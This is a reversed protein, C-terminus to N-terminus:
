RGTTPATYHIIILEARPQPHGHRPRADQYRLMVSEDVAPDWWTWRRGWIPVHEAGWHSLATSLYNYLPDIGVQAMLLKDGPPAVFSMRVFSRIYGVSEPPDGNVGTSLHFGAHRLVACLDPVLQRMSDPRWWWQHAPAPAAQAAPSALAAALTKGKAAPAAQAAPNARATPGAALLLGALAAATTSTLTKRM